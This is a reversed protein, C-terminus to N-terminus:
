KGGLQRQADESAIRFAEQMSPAKKVRETINPTTSSESRGTVTRNRGAASMRRVAEQTAATNKTVVNYLIDLKSGFVPHTLKDSKLFDDLESMTDEHEQWEPVRQSLSDALSEFERSFTASVQDRQQQLVPELLMKNGEWLAAAQAPAMWQLEPPLTQQIKEVFAQPPADKAPEGGGNTGAQAVSLGLRPAAELIVQRAYNPDNMLRDYATLKEAQAAKESSLSQMKRTFAAQMKKFHPQLEAPVANQDAFAETANPADTAGRAPDQQVEAVAVGEGGATGDTGEIEDAM